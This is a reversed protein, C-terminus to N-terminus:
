LAQFDTLNLTLLTVGPIEVPHQHYTGYVQWTQQALQCLHWGLFGSAGTILLKEHHLM